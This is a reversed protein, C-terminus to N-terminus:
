YRRTITFPPEARCPYGNRRMHNMVRACDEKSFYRILGFKNSDCTRDYTYEMQPFRYGNYHNDLDSFIYYGGLTIGVEELYIKYESM